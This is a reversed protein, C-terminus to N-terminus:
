PTGAPDVSLVAVEVVRRAAAGIDSPDARLKLLAVELLM